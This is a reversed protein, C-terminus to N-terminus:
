SKESFEKLTDKMFSQDFYFEGNSMFGPNWGLHFTVLKASCKDALNIVEDMEEYSAKRMSRSISIFNISTAPAHILLEVDYSWILEILECHNLSEVSFIPHDMLIEIHNFGNDAIFEFAERLGHRIDPQAGIKM